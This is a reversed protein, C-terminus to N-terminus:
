GSSSKTASFDFANMDGCVDENMDCLCRESSGELPISLPSTRTPTVKVNYKSQTTTIRVATTMAALTQM